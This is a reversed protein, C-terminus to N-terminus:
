HTKGFVKASLMTHQVDARIASRGDMTTVTPEMSGTSTELVTKQNVMACMTLTVTMVDRAASQGKQSIVAHQAIM